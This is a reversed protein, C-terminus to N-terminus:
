HGEFVDEGDDYSFYVDKFELSDQIPPLELAEDKDKIEPELDLIEYVREAAAIGQQITVNLRTIRKIPEYLLLLATMFSVFSGPTATGKIVQYGGYWIIGAVCLGGLSEMFPSSISRIAVTRMNIVFRRWNERSFRKTEYEEMNFAKVIRVGQFTETLVSTLDGM